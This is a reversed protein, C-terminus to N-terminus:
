GANANDFFLKKGEILVPLGRAICFFLTIYVSAYAIYNIISNFIGIEWNPINAIIILCFAIVKFTGYAGRSFRSSVIFKGISSQMMSKEGFATMGQEFAISRIGDVLISRTIVILAVWVPLWSLGVFTVWYVNEVIRDGIIDLVAGFKSTINLKRAVYGDLGDMIIIIITLFFSIWYCLSIDRGWYLIGVVVFVLIIRLITILNAM